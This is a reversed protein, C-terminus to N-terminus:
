QCGMINWGLEVEVEVRGGSRQESALELVFIALGLVGAM